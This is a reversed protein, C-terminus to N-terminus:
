GDQESERLEEELVGILRQGVKQQPFARPNIEIHDASELVEIVKRVNIMIEYQENEAYIPTELLRRLAFTAQAEKYRLREKLEANEKRLNQISVTVDDLFDTPVTSALLETNREILRGREKIVNALIERHENM